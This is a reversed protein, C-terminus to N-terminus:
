RCSPESEQPYRVGGSSTFDSCTFSVCRERLRAEVSPSGVGEHARGEYLLQIGDGIGDLAARAESAHRVQEEEVARAIGGREAAVGEQSCVGCEDHMAFPRVCGHEVCARTRARWKVRVREGCYALQELRMARAGYRPQRRKLAPGGAIEGVVPAGHELSQGRRAIVIEGDGVHDERDVVPDNCPVVQLAAGPDDRRAKWLGARLFRLATAITESEDERAQVVSTEASLYRRRPRTRTRRVDLVRGRVRHGLGVDGCREVQSRRESVASVEIRERAHALVDDGPVDELGIERLAELRREGFRGPCEILAQAGDVGSGEGGIEFEAVDGDRACGGLAEQSEVGRALDLRARDLAGARTADVGRVVRRKPRASCSLRFSRASFRM